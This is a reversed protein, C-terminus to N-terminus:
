DAICQPTIGIALVPCAGNRGAELRSLLKGMWTTSAGYKDMISLEKFIANLEKTRTVLVGADIIGCQAFAAFAYLDRDFTQDKSNWELDFAVGEKVYDIKHGALFGSRRSESTHLVSRPNKLSKGSSGLSVKKRSKLRVLLDAEIVTEEWGLPRLEASFLKPIETENGGAKQLMARTIRLKRLAGLIEDFQKPKKKSLILAANRYSTVSFQGLIDQPLFQDVFDKPDAATGPSDIEEQSSVVDLLDAEEVSGAPKIEDINTLM